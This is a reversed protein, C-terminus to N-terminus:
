YKIIKNVQLSKCKNIGFLFKSFDFKSKYERKRAFFYSFFGICVLVVSIASLTKQYKTLNAIETSSQQSNNKKSLYVVYEKQQEMIFIILLLLIVTFTFKFSMKTFLIFFVWLFLSKGFNEKPSINEKSTFNITFFILLFVIFHKFFRNNTFMFQTECGMTEAIFNGSLALFLLFFGTTLGIIDTFNM